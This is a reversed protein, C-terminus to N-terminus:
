KTVVAPTISATCTLRDLAAQGFGRRFVGAVVSSPAWAAATGQLTDLDLTLTVGVPLGGVVRGQEQQVQLTSTAADVLADAQRQGKTRPDPSGDPLAQKQASADLWARVVTAGAPDLWGRVVAGGDTGLPLVELCRGEHEELATRDRSDDAAVADALREVAVQLQAPPAVKALGLLMPEAETLV